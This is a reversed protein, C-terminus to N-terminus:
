NKQVLGPYIIEYGAYEQTYDHYCIADSMDPIYSDNDINTFLMDLNYEYRSLTHKFLFEDFVAIKDELFSSGSYNQSVICSKINPTTATASIGFADSLLVDVHKEALRQKSLRSKITEQIKLDVKQHGGEGDAKFFYKLETLLLSNTNDDYIMIDFEAVPNGNLILKYNPVCQLNSNQAVFSMIRDTMVQEREKAIKSIVEPTNNLEKVLYLLKDVADSYYLLSPSFFVFKGFSFLPQVITVKNKHFEYDYTLLELISKVAKHKVKSNETIFQILSSIESFFIPSNSKSYQNRERTTRQYNFNMVGLSMLVAYVKEYNELTFEGFDFNSYDETDIKVKKLCDKYIKSFLQKDHPRKSFDNWRSSQDPNIMHAFTKYDYSITKKNETEIYKEHDIFRAYLDANVDRISRSPSFQIRHNDISIKLRGLEAQDFANRINAFEAGVSITDGCCGFEYQCANPLFPKDSQDCYQFAWKIAVRYGGRFRDQLIAIRDFDTMVMQTSLLGLFIEEIDCTLKYCASQLDNQKFFDFQSPYSYINEKVISIDNSM